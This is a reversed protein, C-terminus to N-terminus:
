HTRPKMGLSARLAALAERGRAEEEPTRDKVPPTPAQPFQGQALSELHRRENELRIRENRQHQERRQREFHAVEPEFEGRQHLNLLRRVYGGPTNIPYFRANYAMEDLIEQAVAEPTSSLMRGLQVCLLASLGDPFALRPSPAPKPLKAAQRRKPPAQHGPERTPNSPITEPQSAIAALNLTELDPSHAALFEGCPAEPEAQALDCPPTQPLDKTERFDTGLPPAACFGAPRSPKQEARPKPEPKAKPAAQAQAAKRQAQRQDALPFTYVTIHGRGQGKTKVLYGCEVLKATSKTVTEPHVHTKTAITQRKPWAKGSKANRHALLFTMIRIDTPSLRPDSLIPLEVQAFRVSQGGAQPPASNAYVM